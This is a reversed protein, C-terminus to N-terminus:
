AVTGLPHFGLAPTGVCGFSLGLGVYKCFAEIIGGCSVKGAFADASIGGVAVTVPFFVEVNEAVGDARGDEGFIEEHVVGGVAGEEEAGFAM